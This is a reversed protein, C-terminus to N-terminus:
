TIKIWRRKKLAYQRKKQMWSPENKYSSFANVADLYNILQNEM